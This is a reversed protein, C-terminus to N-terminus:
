DTSLLYDVYNTFFEQCAASERLTELHKELTESRFTNQFNTM